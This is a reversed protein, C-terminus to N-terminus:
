LCSDLLVRAKGCGCFIATHDKRAQCSLEIIVGVFNSMKKSESICSASFSISPSGAPVSPEKSQVTSLINPEKEKLDSHFKNEFHLLSNHRNGCRPCPRSRCSVISHHPNFCLICLKHKKVIDFREELKKNMFENCQFLLYPQSCVVCKQKAQGTTAFSKKESKQKFLEAETIKDEVAFAGLQLFKQLEEFVPYSQTTSISNEWDKTAVQDLCLTIHYTIYRSFTNNIQEGASKLGRLIVDVEDLLNRIQSDTKISEINRLKRFLARVIMRKNEFRSM